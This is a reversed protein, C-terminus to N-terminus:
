VFPNQDIEWCMLPVTSPQLALGYVKGRGQKWGGPKKGPHRQRPLDAAAIGGPSYAQGCTHLVDPYRHVEM